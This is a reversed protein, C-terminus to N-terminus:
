WIIIFTKKERLSVSLLNMSLWISFSRCCVREVMRNAHHDFALVNGKALHSLHSNRHRVRVPRTTSENDTMIKLNKIKSYIRRKPGNSSYFETKSISENPFWCKQEFHIFPDNFWNLLVNQKSLKIVSNWPYKRCHYISASYTHNINSM